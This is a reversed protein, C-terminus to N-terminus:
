PSAHSKTEMAKSSSQGMIEHNKNQLNALGPLLAWFVLSNMNFATIVTVEFMQNLMFFIFIVTYFALKQENGQLRKWALYIIKLILFSFTVGLGLGIIGGMWLIDIFLNHSSNLHNIHLSGYPGVEQGYAEFLRRFGYGTVPKTRWLLSAEKALQVRNSLLRNVMKLTPSQLDIKSKPIPAEFYFWPIEEEVEDTTPIGTTVRETSVERSIEKLDFQVSELTDTLYHQEVYPKIMFFMLTILATLGLLTFDVKQKYFFNLILYIVLALVLSLFITRSNSFALVVAQVLGIVAVVFRLIKQKENRFVYVAAMFGLASIIAGQNANVYLGSVGKGWVGIVNEGLEYRVNFILSYLTFLGTLGSFLAINKSGFQLYDLRRFEPYSPIVVLLLFFVFLRVLLSTTLLYGYFLSSASSVAFVFHILRPLRLLWPEGTTMPAIGLIAPLILIRRDKPMNIFIHFLWDVLVIFGVLLAPLLLPNTKFGLAQIKLSNLWTAGLMLLLFLAYFVKRFSLLRDTLM